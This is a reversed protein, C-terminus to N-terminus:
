TVTVNNPNAYDVTIRCNSISKSTSDYIDKSAYNNYNNIFYSDSTYESELLHEYNSDYSQLTDYDVLFLSYKDPMDDDWTCDVYYYADGIYVLNWAHCGVNPDSSVFRVDFGAEKCLRYFALAYGQCVALGRCFVGYSSYNYDNDMDYDNYDCIDLIYDHFEKLIEYDSMANFNLTALYEKIEYDVAKEESANCYYEPYLTITYQSVSSNYNYKISWGGVQWKIYDGDVSSVSIEDSTAIYFLKETRDLIDQRSLPASPMEFSFEESRAVLADRFKPAAEDTWSLSKLRPVAVSEESYFPNEVYENEGSYSAFAYIPVCFAATVLMIASLLASLLKKM